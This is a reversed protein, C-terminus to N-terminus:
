LLRDLAALVSDFEDSGNMALVPVEGKQGDMAERYADAVAPPVVVGVVPVEGGLAESLQQPPPLHAVQYGAAAFLPCIEDADVLVMAEARKLLRAVYEDISDLFEEPASEITLGVGPTRLHKPADGEDIVHIVRCHLEHNGLGPLELAVVIVEGMRLDSRGRVFLGDRSLNEVLGSAERNRCTYHARLAVRHRSAGRKNTGPPDM